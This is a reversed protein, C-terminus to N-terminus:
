SVQEPSTLGGDEGGDWDLKVGETGSPCADNPSSPQPDALNEGSSSTYVTGSTAAPDYDFQYYNQGAKIVVSDVAVSTQWDIVRPQGDSDFESGTAEGIDAGDITGSEVCFSINSIGQGLNGGNPVTAIAGSLGLSLGIGVLVAVAVASYLRRSVGSMLEDGREKWTNDM